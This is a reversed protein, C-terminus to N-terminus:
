RERTDVGMATWSAQKDRRPRHAATASTNLRIHMTKATAADVVGMVPMTSM